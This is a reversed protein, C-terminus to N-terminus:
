PPPPYPQPPPPPYPQPPPYPYPGYVGRAEAEEHLRTCRGTERWGVYASYLFAVGAVAYLTGAVRAADREAETDLDDATASVGLAGIIQAAGVVTDVVPWVRSETCSVWAGPPVPDPARDVFALSCGALQAAVGMAVVRSAFGM